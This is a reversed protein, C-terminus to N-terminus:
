CFVFNSLFNVIKEGNEDLGTDIMVTKDGIKIVICDSKGTELVTIQLPANSLNVSSSLDIEESMSKPRCASLFTLTLFLLLTFHLKPSSLKKM